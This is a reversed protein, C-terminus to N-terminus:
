VALVTTTRGRGITGPSGEVSSPITLSPSLLVAGFVGICCCCAGINGGLGTTGVTLRRPPRTSLTSLPLLERQDRENRSQNKNGLHDSELFGSSYSDEKTHRREKEGGKVGKERGVGGFQGERRSEGGRRGM